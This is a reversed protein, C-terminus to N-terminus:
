RQLAPVVKLSVLYLVVTLVIGLSISWAILQKEVRLLPEHEMKQMEDALKAPENSVKVEVETQPM